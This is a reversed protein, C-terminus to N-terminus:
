LHAFLAKALFNANNIRINKSNKARELLNQRRPLGGQQGDVKNGTQRQICKEDNKHGINNLFNHTSSSFAVVDEWYYFFSISSM